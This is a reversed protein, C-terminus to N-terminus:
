SPLAYSNSSGLLCLNCHASITGSCEQRPSRSLSSLLSLCSFQKFRPPPSQLSGLEQWQVGAQAVFSQTPRWNLDSCIQLSGTTGAVQSASASSDRSGLLRFNCHASITGSCELRAVSCSQAQPPRPQLLGHNHWQVGAQAVSHSRTMLLGSVCLYKIQFIHCPRTQHSMGIIGASQSASPRDRALLELDAQGVHRFGDRNFICLNAQCPPMHRYDWSSLFSLLNSHASIEGSSELKPSLALSYDWCKISTSAPLDSSTLPELATQSASAPSNSSDLLHLNSLNHWQVGAQAVSHSKPPRPTCVEQPGSNLVLRVLMTFGCRTTCKQLELYEPPEPVSFSKFGPPPPQLSSLNPWQIGAQNVSRSCAATSYEFQM